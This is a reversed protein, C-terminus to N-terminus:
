FTKILFPKRIVEEVEQQHLKGEGVAPAAM